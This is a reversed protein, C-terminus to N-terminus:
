TERRAPASAAAAYASSLPVHPHYREPIPFTIAEENPTYVIENRPSHILILCIGKKYGKGDVGLGFAREFESSQFPTDTSTRLISKVPIHISTRKNLFFIAKDFLMAELRIPCCGIGTLISDQWCNKSTKKSFDTLISDVDDTRIALIVDREKNIILRPTFRSAKACLLTKTPQVASSDAAQLRRKIDRPSLRIEAPNSNLTHKSHTNEMSSCHRGQMKLSM